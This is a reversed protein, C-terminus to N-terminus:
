LRVLSLVRKNILDLEYLQKLEHFKREKTRASSTAFDDRGSEFGSDWVDRLTNFCKKCIRELKKYRLFDAFQHAGLQSGFCSLHDINTIDHINYFRRCNECEIQDPDVEGVIRLVQDDGSQASM